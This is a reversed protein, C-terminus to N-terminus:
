LEQNGSRIKKRKIKKLNEHMLVGNEYNRGREGRLSRKHKGLEREFKHNGGKGNNNCM